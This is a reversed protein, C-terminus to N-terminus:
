AAFELVFQVQDQNELADPIHQRVWAIAEAGSMGMLKAALCAMFTGTRGVGAYCHVAVNVGAQAHAQVVALANELARWDPISFDPIPCHVVQLGQSAYFAALNRGTSRLAEDAEVLMVVLAINHERYAQFIEGDPDERRYPMASRYIRGPLGFPLETLGNPQFM